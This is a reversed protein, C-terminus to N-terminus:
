QAAIPVGYLTEKNRVGTIQRKKKNTTLRALPNYIKNMKEFFWKKPKKEIIKM